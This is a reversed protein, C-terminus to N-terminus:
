DLQGHKKRERRVAELLTAMTLRDEGAGLAATAARRVAEAIMAGNMDHSEALRDLDIDDALPVAPGLMSRWLRRREATDPMPFYVIAQLRRTFATDINGRLNSALITVAEVNELRQLLYAVEQNAYRDQASRTATRQGFLADAEDFLLISHAADFSEFLRSLNKETEGVWKSVLESLDVRYVPRGTAKGLLTAALTKGTGPQGHFLCHLGPGIRPALGWEHRIRPGHEIWRRIDDLEQLVPAPLVLDDWELDTQIRAAGSPGASGGAGGVGLLALARPGPSLAADLESWAGEPRELRLLGRDILPRGPRVLDLLALRPALDEGALLLLATRVTPQFGHTQGPVGGFETFGRELAPNRILFPDLRQPELKAALALALILREEAQLAVGAAFAPAPAPAPGATAPPAPPAPAADSELFAKLAAEITASLWEFEARLADAVAVATM